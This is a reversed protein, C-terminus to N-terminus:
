SSAYRVQAGIMADIEDPTRAGSFLFGQWADCGLAKLIALESASEIGEATVHFGVDHAVGIIARVISANFANSAIDTVFVRDIKITDIPLRQLYELSSYKVGFDDLALGIKLARIQNLTALVEREHNIFSSETLELGILSGDVDHTRLLDALMQPLSADHLQEASVNVWVRTPARSAAWHKAQAVAQEFVWAGIHRIFGTEEALPIFASPPVPGVFPDNWRLLAELALIRGTRGCVVPQYHLTFEGKEVARRLAAEMRFRQETGRQLESTYYHFTAGGRGKAAYMAVDASRLLADPEQADMPYVSIGMSSSVSHELGGVTFPASFADLLQRARLSVNTRDPMPPGVIIFEDGGTRALVEGPRLQQGLRRTIEVILQDGVVHGLTDNITKFRDLDFFFIPTVGGGHRERIANALYDRIGARNLLNTLPDHFALHELAAESAKRETIDLITGFMQLPQGKEDYTWYGREEVHRVTGDARLIRHDSKYQRHETRALEVEERVRAADDPHDFDWLGGSKIEQPNVGLLRGLEDSCLTKRSQFDHVYVGLHAVEQALQMMARSENLRQATVFQETVNVVHVLRAPIGRYRLDHPRILVYLTEGNKARHRFAGLEIDVPNGRLLELLQPVDEPPRLDPLHMSLFEKRTYGYQDIAAQNVALFKLTKCDFVYMPTPSRDFTAAQLGTRSANFRVAAGVTAAGLLLGELMPFINPNLPTVIKMDALPYSAQVDLM